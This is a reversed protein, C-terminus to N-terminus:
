TWSSSFITLEDKKWELPFVGDTGGGVTRGSFGEVTLGGISSIGLTGEEVDFPFVGDTGGGVTGGSFRGM